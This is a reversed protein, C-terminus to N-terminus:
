AVTPITMAITSRDPSACVKGKADTTRLRRLLSFDTHLVHELDVVFQLKEERTHLLFCLRDAPSKLVPDPPFNVKGSRTLNHHM